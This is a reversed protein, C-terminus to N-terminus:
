RIRRLHKPNLFGIKDMWLKFNRNGNIEVKNILSYGKQFRKDILKYDYVEYFKFGIKKLEKAVEKIFNKSNSSGVISPYNVKKYVICFDTDALGKIFPITLGREKIIRPIKLKGYKKGIPLEFINALYEVLAKSYVYFGYTSGSDQKKIDIDINFVSKFLPKIIENYFKVETKPDGVCKVRYDNKQRRICINGDGALVGVIYALDESIKNPLKLGKIKDKPSLDINFNLIFNNNIM